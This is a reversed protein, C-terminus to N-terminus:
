GGMEKGKSLIVPSLYAINPDNNLVEFAEYYNVKQSTMALYRGKHDIKDLQSIFPIARISELHNTDKVSIFFKDDSFVLAVKETDIYRYLQQGLVSTTGFSAIILFLIYKRM